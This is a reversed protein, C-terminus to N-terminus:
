AHVLFLVKYQIRSEKMADTMHYYKGLNTVIRAAAYLLRQHRNIIKKLQWYKPTSQTSKPLCHVHSTLKMKNDSFGWLNRIRCSIKVYSDGVCTSIKLKSLHVTTGFM